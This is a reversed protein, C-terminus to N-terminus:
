GDGTKPERPEPHQGVCALYIPDENDDLGFLRHLEADFFGGITVAGLGLATAALYLNEALHGADLLVYRYGRQGYKWMTRGREAVIVIVINVDALMQQGLTMEALESNFLGPRRVEIEHARPDYHHLGDALGTVQQTALHVELPYLGGASPTSRDYTWEGEILRQGRIGCSVYLLRGLTELPLQRLHYDRTSTRRKLVEGLPMALHFDRGSM